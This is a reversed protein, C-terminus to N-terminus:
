MVEQQSALQILMPWEASQGCMIYLMYHLTKANLTLCYNDSSVPFTYRSFLTPVSPLTEFDQCSLEIPRV